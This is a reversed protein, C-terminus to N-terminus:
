LLSVNFYASPLYNPNHRRSKISEISSANRVWWNVHHHNDTLIKVLATAWSGNGIVGIRLNEKM